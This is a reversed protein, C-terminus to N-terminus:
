ARKALRVEAALPAMYDTVRIGLPLERLFYRDDIRVCFVHIAVGRDDHDAPEGVAFFGSGQRAPPLCELLQWWQDETIEHWCTRDNAQPFPWAGNLAPGMLVATDTSKSM